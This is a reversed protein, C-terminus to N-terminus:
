VEVIYRALENKDNPQNSIWKAYRRLEIRFPFRSRCCADLDKATKGEPLKLQAALREALASNVIRAAQYLSLFQTLTSKGIGPGGLLLTYPHDAFFLSFSSRVQMLNEPLLPIDNSSNLGYTQSLWEIPTGEQIRLTLDIFVESLPLNPEDGAEEARASGERDTVFELYARFASNKRTLQRTSENFIAKLIDGPLITDIYATRVAENADLMRSLDSADWVYIQPIYESWKKMLATVQDRTGVNRAGTFPVNTIMVYAHCPVTYKYVIKELEKDLDTVVADRATSWGRQDLDHYKVQFVWEKVVDTKQKAPRSYEPHNFPQSWTAERGGDQGPGFQILNGDIRYLNELLAQAMSEFEIPQMRAFSYKSMNLRKHSSFFFLINRLTLRVLTKIICGIIKDDITLIYINIIRRIYSYVLM